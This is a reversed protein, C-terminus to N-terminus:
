TDNGPCKGPFSWGKSQGFRREQAGMENRGSSGFQAESHWYIKLKRTSVLNHNGLVSRPLVRYAPEENGM